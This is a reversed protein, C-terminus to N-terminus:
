VVNTGEVGRERRMITRNNLMRQAHNLRLLAINNEECAFEGAQFGQLRDIAIAILDEIQIGNVGCEKVPGEQFKFIYAMSGAMIKYVHNAGGPGKEDIVLVKTPSDILHDLERYMIDETLNGTMAPISDANFFFM